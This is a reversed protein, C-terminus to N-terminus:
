KDQFNLIVPDLGKLSLHDLVRGNNFVTVEEEKLSIKDGKKIKELIRDEILSFPPSISQYFIDNKQAFGNFTIWHFNDFFLIPKKLLKETTRATEPDFKKLVEFVKRGIKISEKCDYSCPTHFILYYSYGGSEANLSTIKKLDQADRGRLRNQLNFINNVYYSPKGKTRRLINQIIKQEPGRALQEVCCKPYGLLVGIKKFDDNCLFEKLKETIKENRSIVLWKQEGKRKIIGEERDSYTRGIKEIPMEAFYLKGRRNLKILASKIAATNIAGCLLAPKVGTLFGIFEM